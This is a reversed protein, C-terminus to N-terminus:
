SLNLEPRLYAPWHEGVARIERHTVESWLWHESVNHQILLMGKDHQPYVGRKHGKPPELTPLVNMLASLHSANCHCWVTHLLESIQELHSDATMAHLVVGTSPPSVTNGRACFLTLPGCHDSHALPPAATLARLPSERSNKLHAKGKDPSPAIANLTIYHHWPALPPAATM